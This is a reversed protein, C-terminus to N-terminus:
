DALTIFISRRVEDTTSRASHGEGEIDEALVVDGTSFVRTEGSSVTVELTGSLIVIFQRQPANHTGYDYSPETERFIIDKVAFRESLLGIPGKDTLPYSLDEFRSQGRDDSYIRTVKFFRAM